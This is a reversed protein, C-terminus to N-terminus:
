VIRALYGTFQDLLWNTGQLRAEAGYDTGLFFGQEAYTLITADGADEFDVGALSVSFLNGAVQMDFDYVLRRGPEILHFRSTYVTETGNEFCGHALEGGGVRLDLSRAIETWGPGAFWGRRHELQTWADFVTLRPARVTRSATLSGHPLLSSQTM